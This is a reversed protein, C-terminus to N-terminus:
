AMDIPLKQPNLVEYGLLLQIDFWNARYVANSVKAGFRKGLCTDIPKKVPAIGIITLPM